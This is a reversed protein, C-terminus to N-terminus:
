LTQLPLQLENGLYYKPMAQGAIYRDGGDNTDLGEKGDITQDLNYIYRGEIANGNEDLAPTLGLCRPIYFVGVPYGVMQYVVRNNGVFGAGSM